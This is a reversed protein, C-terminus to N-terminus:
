AFKLIM